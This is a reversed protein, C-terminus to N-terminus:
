FILGKKKTSQTMSEKHKLFAAHIADSPKQEEQLERDDAVRCTADLVMTPHTRNNFRPWEQLHGAGNPDGTRAFQICTSSWANALRLVDPTTPVYFMHTKHNIAPFNFTLPIDAAHTAGLVGDCCTTPLDLRYKWIPGDWAAIAEVPDKVVRHFSETITYEFGKRDAEDVWPGPDGLPYSILTGEDRNTGVIIPVAEPSDKAYVDAMSRTVVHGDIGPGTRAIGLLDNADMDLVHDRLDDPTTDEQLELHKCLEAYSSKSGDAPGGNPSHLIVRHFKGQAEPAGLLLMIAEAGSSEGFVTVCDPDGGYDAINDRVWDLALIMDRIGNNASGEYDAGLSSLDLFGFAGVRFNIAVVVVDGQRVLQIGNYDNASGGTYGGGHVWVMVPRRQKDAGPTFVNLFLCDEDIPGLEDRQTECYFTAHGDQMAQNHFFTADYTGTWPGSPEPPLFRKKGTAPEGYRVGLFTLTDGCDVGRISGLRTEINKMATPPTDMQTM